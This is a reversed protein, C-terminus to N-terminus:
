GNIKIDTMTGQCDIDAILLKLMEPSALSKVIEEPDIRHEPAANILKMEEGTLLTKVTTLGKSISMVRCVPDHEHLALPAKIWDGVKLKPENYFSIDIYMLRLWKDIQLETEEKTGKSIRYLKGERMHAYEYTSNPWTIKKGISM